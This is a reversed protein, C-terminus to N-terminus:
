WRLRLSDSPASGPPNQHWYLSQRTSRLCHGRVLAKAEGVKWRASERSTPTVTRQHPLYPCVQHLFLNGTLGMYAEDAIMSYNIHRFAPVCCGPHVSNPALAQDINTEPAAKCSRKAIFPTYNSHLDLPPSLIRQLPTFCRSM